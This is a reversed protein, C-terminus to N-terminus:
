HLLNQKLIIVKTFFIDHWDCDLITSSNCPLSVTKKLNIDQCSILLKPDNVYFEVSSDNFNKHYRLHFPLKINLYCINDENSAFSSTKSIIYKDCLIKRTKNLYLFLDFRDSEFEAKEVDVSTGNEKILYQFNKSYLESELEYKDVYANSPFNEIILLDCQKNFEESNLNNTGKDNDFKILIETIM